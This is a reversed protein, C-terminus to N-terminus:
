TITRSNLSTQNQLYSAFDASLRDVDAYSLTKGLATFAPRDAYKKVSKNFVEVVSKYQDVDVTAPLGKPYKDSFFTENM